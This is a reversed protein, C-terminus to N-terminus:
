LKDIEKMKNKLIQLYIEFPPPHIQNHGELIIKRAWRREAMECVDKINRGSIGESVRSLIEIESDQLHAIYKKFIHIRERFDPLLFKIIVDFRSLLAHDLDEARNTAGITLVNQSNEFGDIKRLLVSLVRRTAEIIGHERSTALSDIEDLFLIVNSFREACDFVEALNKASEGYYKSLINEIPIYVMPIKSEAAIIKAMSTKGVGPSGEFLVANPFNAIEKGRALESVKIFIDPYQLPLIITEQVEAKLEEYGGLSDWKEEIPIIYKETEKNIIEKNGYIKTGLQLLREMYNYNKHKQFFYKFIEIIAQLEENLLNGGKTIEVRNVGFTIFKFKIENLFTKTNFINNGMSQFIVYYNDMTHVRINELYQKIIQLSDLINEKSLTEPLFYTKFEGKEFNIVPLEIGDINFKHIEEEITNKATIFDIESM